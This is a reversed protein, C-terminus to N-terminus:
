QFICLSCNESVQKIKDEIDTALVMKHTSVPRNTNFSILKKLISDIFANLKTYGNIITNM